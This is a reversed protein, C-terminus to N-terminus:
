DYYSYKSVKNYSPDYNHKNYKNLYFYACVIILIFILIYLLIKLIGMGSNENKRINKFNKMKYYQKDFLDKM